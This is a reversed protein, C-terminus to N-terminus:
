ENQDLSALGAHENSPTLYREDDLLASVIRRIKASDVTDCHLGWFGRDPLAGGCWANPYREALALVIQGDGFFNVEGPSLVLLNRYGPGGLDTHLRDTLTATHAHPLRAITLLGSADTELNRAAQEAEAEEEATVGQAHRDAARIEAIERPSAKLATLAPIYGRDNAAVLDFHRTWRTPPLGLLQFVQHLSTPAEKGARPGHHDAILLANDHLGLDNELEVLVATFGQSRATRIEGEYSSARAGWGLGKDHFRGPAEQELLERITVMELDRGGLFFVLRDPSPRTLT